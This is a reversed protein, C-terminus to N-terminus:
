FVKNLVRLLMLLMQLSTVFIYFLKDYCFFFSFSFSFLPILIFFFYKLLLFSNLYTM